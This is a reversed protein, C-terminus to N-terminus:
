RKGRKRNTTTRNGRKPLKGGRKKKAKARLKAFDKGDIKGNKNKDIKKQKATLPKKRM